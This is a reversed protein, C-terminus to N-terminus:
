SIIPLCCHTGSSYQLCLVNFAMADDLVHRPVDYQLSQQVEFCHNLYVLLKM